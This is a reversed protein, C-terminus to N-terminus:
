KSFKQIDDEINKGSTERHWYSEGDSGPDHCRDDGGVNALTSLLVLLLFLLSRMMGRGVGVRCVYCTESENKLESRDPHTGRRWGGRLAERTWARGEQGSSSAFVCSFTWAETM